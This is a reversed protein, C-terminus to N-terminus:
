ARPGEAPQSAIASEIVRNLDDTVQDPPQLGDIVRFTPRERYFNVVPTTERTFVALRDRIVAANDDTRQV